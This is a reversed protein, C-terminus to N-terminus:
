ALLEITMTAAKILGRERDPVMLDSNVLPPVGHHQTNNVEISSATEWKFKCFTDKIKKPFAASYTGGETPGSEAVCLTSVRGSVSAADVENPMAATSLIDDMGKGMM